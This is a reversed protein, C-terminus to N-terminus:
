AKLMALVGLCCAAGAVWAMAGVILALKSWRRSEAAANQAGAYDGQDLLPEVRKANIIAPIALPWFLLLSVLAWRMNSDIRPPPRESPHGTQM